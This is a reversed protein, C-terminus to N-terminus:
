CTTSGPATAYVILSGKPADMQALGKQTSRFSRAFPNDRCADLIVINLANGASDMKRLVSGADISEDQVEDEAKLDSGVPILYNVGKVQMGHGAYYFLGVGGKKLKDGFDRIAERMGSRNVNIQLNVSFGLKQLAAAVDNADNKTNFLRGIKYDANGIVLAHRLQKDNEDNAFVITSSFGIIMLILLVLSNYSKM